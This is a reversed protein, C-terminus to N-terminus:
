QWPVVKLMPWIHIWKEVKKMYIDETIKKKNPRVVLQMLDNLRYPAYIKLEDNELRVGVATATTPYQSIADEISLFPDIPFGFHKEYWLHVRAQNRIEISIDGFIKKSKKIFKDEAEYSLDSDDFYVLDYDGIGYNLDYRHKHNWITQALCGATLYWNKMELSPARYLIEKIVENQLLIEKFYEMSWFIDTQSHTSLFGAMPLKKM